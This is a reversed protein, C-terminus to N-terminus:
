TAETSIVAKYTSDERFADTNLCCFNTFLPLTLVVRTGQVVSSDIRLQAGIRAARGHIIGLGFHDQTNKWWEQPDFGIGDDEVILKIEFQNAELILRITNAKSHRWANLLAEQLVSMAQNRQGLPLYLPGNAKMILNIEPGEGIPLQSPLEALLEQISRRPQPSSQLSTISRRVDVSARDVTNRMSSLTETAQRISKRRILDSLDDIQMGLLSIMQALGDHMDEAIRQREELAAAWELQRCLDANTLAVTARNVFSEILELDEKRWHHDRKDILFLTGLSQHIDKIPVCILAKITDHNPLIRPIEPDYRSDQLIMSQQLNVFDKLYDLKDTRERLDLLETDSLGFGSVLLLDKKDEDWTFIMSKECDLLMVSQEAIQDYIKTANLTSTLVVSMKHLLTLEKAAREAKQFLYANEISMGIQRGITSLLDLSTQDLYTAQRSGMTLAGVAVGKSVLPMSVLKKLGQQIINSEPSSCPYDEVSRIITQMSSIVENSIEICCCWDSRLKFATDKLIEGRQSRLVLESMDQDRLFVLGIDMNILSLLTDLASELITELELSSSLTASIINQAALNSNRQALEAQALKRDHVERILQENVKSLETTRKAVLEELHQRHADLDAEILKKEITQERLYVYALLPIALIRLSNGIPCILYNYNKDTAYNVMVLIESILFFILAITVVNSLWGPKRRLLVIAVLILSSLSIQFFWTGLTTHFHTETLTELYGPWNWFAFILCLSSIGLGILLYRRTLREDDLTYRLFAGAVILISAMALSRELPVLYAYTAEREIVDLMQLSIFGAMLIASLAGLGFGWVLLKERPLSQKHQRNWAVVMLAGWMFAPLIFRVLNNEMLGPGGAFQSLIHLFFELYKNM